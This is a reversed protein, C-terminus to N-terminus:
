AGWHKRNNAGSAETKNKTRSIIARMSNTRKNSTQKRKKIHEYGLRLLKNGDKRANVMEKM